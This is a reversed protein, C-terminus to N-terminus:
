AGVSGKRKKDTLSRGLLRSIVLDNAGAADRQRHSRMTPTRLRARKSCSLSRTTTEGSAGGGGHGHSKGHSAGRRAAM